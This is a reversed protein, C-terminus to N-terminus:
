HDGANKEEEMIVLNELERQERVTQCWLIMSQLKCIGYYLTSIKYYFQQKNELGEYKNKLLLLQHLHEELKEEYAQINQRSKEYPLQDFFFVKAIFSEMSNGTEESNELWDAFVKRGDVTISYSKKIRKGNNEHSCTIFGKELLKNLIPYISGYSAKYFMGIGNEIARRIDYGTYSKYCLTGLIIYELM